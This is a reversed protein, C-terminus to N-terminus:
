RSRTGVVGFHKMNDRLVNGRGDGYENGGISQDNVGIARTLSGPGGFAQMGRNRNALAPRYSRQPPRAQPAPQSLAMMEDLISPGAALLEDLAGPDGGDADPPIDIEEVPLEEPEESFAGEAFRGEMANYQPELKPAASSAPRRVPSVAQAPGQAIAPPLDTGNVAGYILMRVYAAEDLGLASAKAHLRERM